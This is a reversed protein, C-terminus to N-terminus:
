PGDYFHSKASCSARSRPRNRNAGATFIGDTGDAADAIVIVIPTLAVTAKAM